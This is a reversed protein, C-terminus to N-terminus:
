KGNILYRMERIIIHTYLLIGEREIIERKIDRMLLVRMKEGIFERMKEVDREKDREKYKNIDGYDRERRM